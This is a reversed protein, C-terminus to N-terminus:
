GPLCSLLSDIEGADNYLHPSVRISTGRFSVVVNKSKLRAKFENVDLGDLAISVIHGVTEVTDDLPKIYNKYDVIKDTLKKIETQIFSARWEIIQELGAIAMPALNLQPFEGMDFKRAGNRYADTYLTLATFDDSDKRTAWSYELPEGKEQWQESVYMYGLGYPGLMWKYGVAVAFDPRIADINIPLAGMSQSLDLVLYAGATKAANSIKQLDIWSGDIWHCNPIAIIGTNECIKDLLSETLTKGPSKGVMVMQLNKQQALNEWVYYNSPFQQELILIDKGAKPSLNKAAVALGYSASPILAMNDNSTQFISAALGRLKEAGTFWEKSALKWPSARTQMAQLGAERVSKLMPSMNACNLYTLGEEFLFLDKPNMPTIM